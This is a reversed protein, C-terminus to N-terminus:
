DSKIVIRYIEDLLETAYTEHESLVEDLKTLEAGGTYDYMNATWPEETETARDNDDVVIEYYTM